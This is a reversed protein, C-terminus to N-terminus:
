LGIKKETLSRKISDKMISKGTNYFNNTEKKSTSNIENNGYM